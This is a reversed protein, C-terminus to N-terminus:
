MPKITLVCTAVGRERMQGSKAKGKREYVPKKNNGLLQSVDKMNTNQRCAILKKPLYNALPFYLTMAGLERQKRCQLRGIVYVICKEIVSSIGTCEYMCHHSQQVKPLHIVTTFEHGM